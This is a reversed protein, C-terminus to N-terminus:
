MCTLGGFNHPPPTKPAAPAAHLHSNYPNEDKNSSLSNALYGRYRICIYIGSLVGLSWYLGSWAAAESEELCRVCESDCAGEWGM